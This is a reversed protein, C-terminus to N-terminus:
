ILEALAKDESDQEACTIIKDIFKTIEPISNKEFHPAGKIWVLMHVHCSGRHQM